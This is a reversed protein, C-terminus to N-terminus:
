NTKAPVDCTDIKKGHCERGLPRVVCVVSCSTKVGVTTEM